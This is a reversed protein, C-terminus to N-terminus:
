DKKTEIVEAEVEIAESPNSQPSSPARGFTQFRFGNQFPSAGRGFKGFFAGMGEAALLQTGRKKLSIGLFFVGVPLLWAGSPVGEGMPFHDILAKLQGVGFLTLFTGLLKLVRGQTWFKSQRVVQRFTLGGLVEFFAFMGFWFWAFNVAVTFAEWSSSSAFVKQFFYVSASLFLGFM